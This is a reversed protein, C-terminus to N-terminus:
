RIQVLGWLVRDPAASWALGRGIAHRAGFGKSPGFASSRSRCSLSSEGSAPLSSEVYGLVPYLRDSISIELSGKQLVARLVKDIAMMEGLAPLGETVRLSFMKRLLKASTQVDEEQLYTRL